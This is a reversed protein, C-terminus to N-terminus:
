KDHVKGELLKLINDIYNPTIKIKEGNKLSVCSYSLSKIFSFNVLFSKHVRIFSDKDLESEVDDLKGYFSDRHDITIVEIKRNSSMFFCIEDCDLFITESQKKYSFVKKSLRSSKFFLDLLRELDEYEVPKDLFSFPQFSLLDRYYNKSGSMFIIQTKFDGKSFRLLEAFDIGSKKPFEIDLFILNYSFKELAAVLDEVSLFIDVVFDLKKELQYKELYNNLLETFLKNDDCIAFNM